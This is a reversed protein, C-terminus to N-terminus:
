VFLAKYALLNTIGRFYEAYFEFGIYDSIDFFIGIMDDSFARNRILTDPKPLEFSLYLRFLDLVIEKKYVLAITDRDFQTENFISKKLDKAYPCCSSLIFLRWRPM